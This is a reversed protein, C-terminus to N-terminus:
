VERFAKTGPMPRIYGVYLPKAMKDENPHPMAMSELVMLYVMNVSELVCCESEGHYNAAEEPDTTLVLPRDYNSEPQHGAKVYEATGDDYLIGVYM